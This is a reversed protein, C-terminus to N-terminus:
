PGFAPFALAQFPLNQLFITHNLLKISPHPHQLPQVLLFKMLIDIPYIEGLGLLGGMGTFVGLVLRWFSYVDGFVEYFCDFGTFDGSSRCTPLGVIYWGSDIAIDTFNRGRPALPTFPSDPVPHPIIRIRSAPNIPLIPLLLALLPLPLLPFQLPHFRQILLFYYSRLLIHPDPISTNFIKPVLIRMEQMLKGGWVFGTFFNERHWGFEVLILVLIGNMIVFGGFFTIFVNRWCGDLLIYDKVNM